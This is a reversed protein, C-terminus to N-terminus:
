FDPLRMKLLYYSDTTYMMKNELDVAVANLFDANGRGKEKQTPTEYQFLLRGTSAQLIYLDGNALYVKDDFIRLETCCGTLNEKVWETDGTLKNIAILDGNDLNTIFLDEWILFNAGQFTHYLQREFVLNGSEKEYCFVHFQGCFYVYDGDILPPRVNSEGDGIDEKFWQMEKKTLNYAYLSTKGDYPSIIIQQTQFILITDGIGDIFSSVTPIYIEYDDNKRLTLVETFLGSETGAILISTSDSDPANGYKLTKYVLEIDKSYSIYPGGHETFYTWNTTGTNIDISYNDHWSSAILVNNHFITHSIDESTVEPSYDRWTWLENGAQDISFIIEGKAVGANAFSPRYSCILQEDKYHPDISIVNLTDPHLAKKWVLITDTTAPGVPDIPKDIIVPDDDKCSLFLLIIVFPILKIIKM